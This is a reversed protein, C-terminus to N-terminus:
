PEVVNYAPRQLLSGYMRQMFEGGYGRNDSVPCKVCAYAFFEAPASNKTALSDTLRTKDLNTM